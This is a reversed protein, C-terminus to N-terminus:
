ATSSASARPACSGATCRSSPAGSGTFLPSPLHPPRASCGSRPQPAPTGHPQAIAAQPYLLPPPSPFSEASLPCLRIWVGVDSPRPQTATAMRQWPSVAAAGTVPAHATDGSTGSLRPTQGREAQHWGARLRLPLPKAKEPRNGDSQLPKPSQTPM